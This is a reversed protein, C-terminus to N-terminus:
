RQIVDVSVKWSNFDEGEEVIECKLRTSIKFKKGEISELSKETFRSEDLTAINDLIKEFDNISFSAGCVPCKYVYLKKFPAIEMVPYDKDHKACCPTTNKWSNKITSM